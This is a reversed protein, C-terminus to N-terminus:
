VLGVLWLLLLVVGAIALLLLTVRLLITPPLHGVITTPRLTDHVHALRFSPRARMRAYYAAVQPLRGAAWLRDGYLAHVRALMPTWIADALTYEDGVLYPTQQSTLRDDLAGLQVELDRRIAELAHPNRLTRRWSRVDIIKQTYAHELDPARRRYVKLVRVRARLGLRALFGIFGGLAGYTLVQIPFADQRAIWDEMVARADPDDPQLPPGPFHEDIYGVIRASCTMVEGDHVLTPVVGRTNLRMYWPQYNECARGIDVIQTTFPVGKEVLALRVQQSCLSLPYHYLKVGLDDADQAVSGLSDGESSLRAPM